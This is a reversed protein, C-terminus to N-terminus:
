PLRLVQGPKIKDPDALQDKNVEFISLATSSGSVREIFTPPVSAVSETRLWVERQASVASLFQEWTRGNRFLPEVEISGSAPLQALVALFCFLCFQTM